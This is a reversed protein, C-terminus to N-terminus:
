YLIAFYTCFLVDTPRSDLIQHSGIPDQVKNRLSPAESELVLLTRFTKEQQLNCWMKSKWKSSQVQSPASDAQRYTKMAESIMREQWKFSAVNKVIVSNTPSQLYKWQFIKNMVKQEWTIMSYIADTSCPTTKLTSDVMVYTLLYYRALVLIGQVSARKERSQNEM